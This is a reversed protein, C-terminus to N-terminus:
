VHIISKHLKNSIRSLHPCPCLRQPFSSAFIHTKRQRRRRQLEEPKSEREHEPTASGPLLQMRHLASSWKGHHGSLLSYEQTGAVAPNLGDTSAAVSPSGPGCPSPGCAPM